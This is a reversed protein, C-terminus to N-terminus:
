FLQPSEEPPPTVAQRKAPRSPPVLDPRKDLIRVLDEPTIEQSRAADVIRRLAAAWAPNEETLTRLEQVPPRHDFRRLSDLPQDLARALAALVDPSPNRFGRELDAVFAVSKLGAAQALARMSMQRTKRLERIRSGLAPLSQAMSMRIYAGFRVHLQNSMRPYRPLASLADCAFPVNKVNHILQSCPALPLGAEPSEDKYAEM